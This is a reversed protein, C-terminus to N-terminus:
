SKRQYRYLMSSRPTSIEVSLGSDMLERGTASWSKGNDYSDIQYIADPILNRLCLVASSYVCAKRRFALVAGCGLDPRDYQSASWIKDSLSIEEILPYFDGTMSARINKLENIRTRLWDYPYTEPVPWWPRQYFLHVNVGANIGSRFNYTDGGEHSQTGNAFMPLWLSLGSISAQAYEPNFGPFCQMDNTWLPISHRLLEIDLRRGGSSCNDILVHPFRKRIEGWFRYLGAVAHIETIGQRDDADHSRWYDLPDINFDERYIDVGHQRILESIYEICWNCADPDGLNMLLSVNPERKGLFWDPHEKTLMTGNIAREPEVWLLFKAGIKHAADSIPKTGHPFTEPYFRWNGVNESWGPGHESDTGAAYWGADIWYTDFSLQKDKLLQIRDLHGKEDIGGWAMVSIPTTAVQGNIRPAIKEYIFRRLLNNGRLMDQGAYRVMYVSPLDIKEGPMLRANLYGHGAEVSSLNVRAKWQGAWGIAFVMGGKNPLKVNFYPMWPDSCRGKVAGFERCDDGTLWEQVPLYSEKFNDPGWFSLHDADSDFSCGAHFSGRGRLLQIFQQTSHASPLQIALSNVHHLIPSPKDSINEIAFRWSCIPMDPYVRLSCIMRLGTQPDEAVYHTEDGEQIQSLKSRSLIQRSHEAGCQFSIPLIDACLQQSHNGIRIMEGNVTEAVLEGWNIHGLQLPTPSKALLTIHKAGNLPVSFENAPTMLGIPASRWLEHTDNHVSFTVQTPAQHMLTDHNAEIGVFGRLTKLPKECTLRIESDAHGAIGWDFEREGITLKAAILGSGLMMRGWGQRISTVEIDPHQAARCFSSVFDHILENEESSVSYGSTNM